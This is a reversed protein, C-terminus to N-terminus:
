SRRGSPRRTPAHAPCLSGSNSSGPARLTGGIFGQQFLLAKRM